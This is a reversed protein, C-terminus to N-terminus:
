GCPGKGSSLVMDWQEEGKDGSPSRYMRGYGEVVECEGKLHYSSHTGLHFVMLM